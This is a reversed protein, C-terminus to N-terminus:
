EKRKIESLEWLRKLEDDEELLIRKLDAALHSLWWREFKIKIIKRRNQENKMYTYFRWQFGGEYREIKSYHPEINIVIDKKKKM